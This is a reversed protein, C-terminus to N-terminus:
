SMLVGSISSIVELSRKMYLYFRLWILLPIKIHEPPTPQHFILIKLRRKSLLRQRESPESRKKSLKEQGLVSNSALRSNLGRFLRQSAVVVKSDCQKRM